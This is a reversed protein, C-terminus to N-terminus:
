ADLVRHLVDGVRVRVPVALGAKDGARARTAPAGDVTLSTVPVRVATTEGIFLVEDGPALEGDLVVGAVMPEGWWASVRGIIETAM